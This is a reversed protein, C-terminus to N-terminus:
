LISLGQCGCPNGEPDRVLPGPIVLDKRDPCAAAVLRSVIYYVGDEPEPLYTVEGFSQKTVPIDAGDFKIDFAKEEFQECRAVAGCPMITKVSGNPLVININHPTLNKFNM